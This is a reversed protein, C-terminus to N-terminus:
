KYEPFFEKSLAVFNAYQYNEMRYSYPRVEIGYKMIKCLVFGAQELIRYLEQLTTKSDLNAGGYEFQIATIFNGSLFKGLGRIGFLEHGEIDMKLFDIHRIQYQEIYEDLRILSITEHKDMTVDVFSLDRQYLSAFGSGEIDYFVEASAAADSVGCNNLHVSPNDSFKTQLISFCKKTPEFVYLHYDIKHRQSHDVLITSYEGVNAGIDFLTVTGNLSLFYEDLFRKEGNTQFDTNNNNEFRNFLTFFVSQAKKRLFNRSYIKM